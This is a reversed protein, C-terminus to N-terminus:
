QNMMWWKRRSFPTCKLYKLLKGNMEIHHINMSLYIDTQLAKGWFAQRTQSYFANIKRIFLCRFTNEFDFNLAMM